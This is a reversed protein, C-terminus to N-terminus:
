FKCLEKSGLSSNAGHNPMSYFIPNVIRIHCGLAALFGAKVRAYWKFLALLDTKIM